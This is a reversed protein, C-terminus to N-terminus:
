FFSPFKGSLSDWPVGLHTTPFGCFQLGFATSELGPEAVLESHSGPWPGKEKRLRLKRMKLVPAFPFNSSSTELTDELYLSICKTHPLGLFSHLTNLVDKKTRRSVGFFGEGM